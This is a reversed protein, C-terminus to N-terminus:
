YVYDSLLGCEPKRATLELRLTSPLPLVISNLLVPADEDVRVSSKLLNKEWASLSLLIASLDAVMFPVM